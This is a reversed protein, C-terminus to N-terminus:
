QLKELEKLTLPEGNSSQFDKLEFEGKRYMEARSPGLVSDQFEASQDAFWDTYTMKAPVEGNMSARTSAETDKLNLGLEKWSKTVPVMVTRCGWHYPALKEPPSDVPFVQGDINICFLTTNGDLTAVAQVGKLFDTNEEYVKQRATSTVTAVATRVVAAANANIKSITSGNFASTGTGKLRTVMQSVSEGEAIGIRVQKMIDKQATQAVSSWWDSMLRGQMPETDVIARLLELNPVRWSLEFPVVAEFAARQWNAESVALSSMDDGLKKNLVHAAGSMIQSTSAALDRLMATGWKGAGRQLRSEIRKLLDPMVDRQLFTLVRNVEGKKFRELHHAHRLASDFLRRNVTRKLSQIRPDAM